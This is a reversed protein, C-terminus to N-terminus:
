EEAKKLRQFLQMGKCRQFGLIVHFVWGSFDFQFCSFYAEEFRLGAFLLAKCRESRFIESCTNTTVFASAHGANKANKLTESGSIDSESETDDEFFRPNLLYDFERCNTEVQLQKEIDNLMVWHKGEEFEQNIEEDKMAEKELKQM